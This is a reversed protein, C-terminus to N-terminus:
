VDKSTMFASSLTVLGFSVVSVCVADPLSLSYPPSSLSVVMTSDLNGMEQDCTYIANSPPLISYLVIEVVTM